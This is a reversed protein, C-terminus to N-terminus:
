SEAEGKVLLRSRTGPSQVQSGLAPDRLDVWVCGATPRAEVDQLPAHRVLGPIGWVISIM